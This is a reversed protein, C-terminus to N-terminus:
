IRMSSKFETRKSLGDEKLQCDKSMHGSEFSMQDSIRKKEISMQSNRVKPIEVKSLISLITTHLLLLNRELLLPPPAIYSM